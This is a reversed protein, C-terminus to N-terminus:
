PQQYQPLAAHRLWFQVVAASMVKLDKISNPKVLHANAGLVYSKRVEKPSDTTSFMLVPLHKVIDSNRIAGLTEFGDVGPMNIDLLVIQPLDEPDTKSLLFDLAQAGDDIHVTEIKSGQAEMAWKFAFVDEEDDDVILVYSGNPTDIM